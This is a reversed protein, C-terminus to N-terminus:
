RHWKEKRRKDSLSSQRRAANMGRGDEAPLHNQRATHRLPLALEEKGKLFRVAIWLCRFPALLSDVVFALVILLVYLIGLSIGINIDNSWFSPSPNRTLFFPDDKKYDKWARRTLAYFPGDYGTRYGPRITESM